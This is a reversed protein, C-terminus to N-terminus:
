AGISSLDRNRILVGRSTSNMATMAKDCKIVCAANACASAGMAMMDEVNVFKRFMLWLPQPTAAYARVEPVKM